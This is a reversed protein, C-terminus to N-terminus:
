LENYKEIAISLLRTNIELTELHSDVKSIVEFTNVATGSRDITTRIRLEKERGVGALRDVRSYGEFTGPMLVHKAATEAM